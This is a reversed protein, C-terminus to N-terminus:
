QKQFLGLFYDFPKRGSDTTPIKINFNLTLRYPALVNLHPCHEVHKYTVEPLLM